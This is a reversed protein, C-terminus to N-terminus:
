PFPTALKCDVHVGAAITHCGVLPHTPLRCKGLTQPEQRQGAIKLVDKALEGQQLASVLCLDEVLLHSRTKHKYEPRQMVELHNKQLEEKDVLAIRSDKNAPAAAWPGKKLM